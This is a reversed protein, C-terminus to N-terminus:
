ISEQVRLWELHWAQYPMCTILLNEILYLGVLTQTPDFASMAEVAFNRGSEPTFRVRQLVELLTQKYGSASM